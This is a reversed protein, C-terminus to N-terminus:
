PQSQTNAPFGGSLNSDRSPVRGIVNDEGHNHTRRSARPEPEMPLVGRAVAKRLAQHNAETEDAYAQAFRCMARDLLDAGGVYGAIM